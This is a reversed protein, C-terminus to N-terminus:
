GHATLAGSQVARLAVQVRDRLGWKRMVHSLHAKVTPESIGISQAIEANSMGELLGSVVKFEKDTLAERSTLTTKRFLVTSRRLSEFMATVAASSAFSRGQVLERVATPLDRELSEEAVIGHSGALVLLRTATVSTTDFFSVPRCATGFNRLASIIDASLQTDQRADFVAVANKGSSDIAQHVARADAEVQRVSVGLEEQLLVRVRAESVGGPTVAIVQPLNM